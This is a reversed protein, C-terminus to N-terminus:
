EHKVATTAAGAGAGATGAAALGRWPKPATYSRFTGFLWDWLMTYQGM